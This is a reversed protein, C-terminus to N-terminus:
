KKQVCGLFLFPIGMLAHVENGTEDRARSPVCRWIEGDFVKLALFCKSRRRKVGGHEEKVYIMKNQPYNELKYSFKPLKM